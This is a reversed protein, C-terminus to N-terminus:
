LEHNIQYQQVCLPAWLWFYILPNGRKISASRHFLLFSSTLVEGTSNPLKSDPIPQAELLSSAVSLWLTCLYWLTRGVWGDSLLFLASLASLTGPFIQLFGSPWVIAIWWQLQLMFQLYQPARQHGSVWSFSSSDVGIKFPNLLFVM